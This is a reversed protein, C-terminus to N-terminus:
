NLPDKIADLLFDSEVNEETETEVMTYEAPSFTGEVATFEADEDVFFLDHFGKAPDLNISVGLEDSLDKLYDGPEKTSTNITFKITGDESMSFEFDKM